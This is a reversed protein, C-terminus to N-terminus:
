VIIEWGRHFSGVNMEGWFYKYRFQVDDLSFAIPFLMNPLLFEEINHLM